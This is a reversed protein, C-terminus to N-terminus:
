VCRQLNRQYVLDIMEQRYSDADFETTTAATATATTSTTSITEQQTTPLEYNNSQNNIINNNTGTRSRSSNRKGWNSGGVDDNSSQGGQSVVSSSRQRFFGGGALGQIQDINMVTLVLVLCLLQSASSPALISHIMTIKNTIKNQKSKQTTHYIHTNSQLQKDHLLSHVFERLVVIYVVIHHKTRASQTSVGNM